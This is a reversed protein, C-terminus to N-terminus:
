PRHFSLHHAHSHTPHHLASHHSSTHLAPIISPSFPSRSHRPTHASTRSTLITGNQQLFDDRIIRAIELTIKESEGLSDKGVLQVIETLDEEM